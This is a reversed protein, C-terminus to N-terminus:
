CTPASISDVIPVDSKKGVSVDEVVKPSVPGFVRGSPTVKVIYAISVASSAAPLRVEKWNEIMTANYKYSVVKDSAYPVTGTLRIVM